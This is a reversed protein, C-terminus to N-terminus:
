NLYSQMKESNKYFCTVANQMMAVSKNLALITQSCTCPCAYPVHSSPASACTRAGTGTGTGAGVGVGMGM